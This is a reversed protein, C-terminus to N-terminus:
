PIYGQAFAVGLLALTGIAAALTAMLIPRATPEDKPGTHNHHDYGPEITVGKTFSDMQLPRRGGPAPAEGAEELEALTQAIGEEIKKIRKAHEDRAAEEFLGECRVSGSLVDRVDQM